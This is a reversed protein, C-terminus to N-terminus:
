MAKQHLEFWLSIQTCDPSFKVDTWHGFIIHLGSILRIITSTHCKYYRLIYYYHTGTVHHEHHLQIYDLLFEIFSFRWTSNTLFSFFSFVKKIIKPSSLCSLHPSTKTQIWNQVQEKNDSTRRPSQRSTRKSRTLFFSSQSHSIYSLFLFM